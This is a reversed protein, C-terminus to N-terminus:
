EAGYGERLECDEFILTGHPLWRQRHDSIQEVTCYAEMTDGNNLTLLWAEWEDQRRSNEEQIQMQEEHTASRHPKEILYAVSFAVDEDIRLVVSRPWIGTLTARLCYREGEYTKRARMRNAAWEARVERVLDVGRCDSTQRSQQQSDQDKPGTSAPAATIACGVSLLFLSALFPFSSQM